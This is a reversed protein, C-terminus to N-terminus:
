VDEREFAGMIGLGALLGALFTLVLGVAVLGADIM